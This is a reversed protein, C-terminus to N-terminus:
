NRKYNQYLISKTSKDLCGAQESWLWPRASSHTWHINYDSTSQDRSLSCFQSSLATYWRITYSCSSSWSRSPPCTNPCNNLFSSSCIPPSVDLSLFSNCFATSSALSPVSPWSYLLLLLLILLLLLLLPLLILLLLLLILLPLLILPPPYSPPPPPSPSNYPPPYPPPPSPLPFSYPPPPSSSRHIVHPIMTAVNQFICNPCSYTWPFSIFKSLIDNGVSIIQVSTNLRLGFSGLQSYDYLQAKHVSMTTIKNSVRPFPIYLCFSGVSFRSKM